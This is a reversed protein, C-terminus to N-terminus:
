IYELFDKDYTSYERIFNSFHRYKKFKKEYIQTYKIQPLFPDEPTLSNIFTDLEKVIGLPKAGLLFAGITATDANKFAFVPRDFINSVLKPWISFRTAGGSLFIKKINSNSISILSDKLAFIIGEIISYILDNREHNMQLGLFAANAQYDFYPTGTGMLYPFFLINRGTIEDYITNLENYILEKNESEFLNQFWQISSGGTPVTGLCFYCQPICHSFLYLRGLLKEEISDLSMLMQAATGICLSLSEKQVTGTALATTALDGGGKIVPIGELLGFQQAAKRSVKGLIADSQIIDPFLSKKLECNDIIEESWCHNSLNYLLSGSADSHDTAIIDTLLFGLYDKPFMIKDIYSFLNPQHNKLWLIKPLTFSEQIPNGTIKLISDTTFINKLFIVEEHARTDSWILCPYTIEKESNLFIPGHMQGTLSIGQISKVIEPHEDEIKHLLNQLNSVWIAPYQEAYGPLSFHTSHSQSSQAKIKGSEDYIICKLHTTGIDITLIYSSDKIM